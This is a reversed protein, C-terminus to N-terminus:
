GQNKHLKEIYYTIMRRYQNTLDKTERTKVDALLGDIKKGEHLLKASEVLYATKRSADNNVTQKSGKANPKYKFVGNLVLYDYVSLIYFKDGLGLDNNILMAMQKHYDESGIWREVLQRIFMTLREHRFNYSGDKESKMIASRTSRGTMYGTEIRISRIIPYYDRSDKGKRKPDPDVGPHELRQFLEVLQDAQERFGDMYESNKPLMSLFLDSLPVMLNQAHNYEIGLADCMEKIGDHFCKDIFYSSILDRFGPYTTDYVYNGKEDKDYYGKINYGWDRECWYKENIEIEELEVGLGLVTARGNENEMRQDGAYFNVKRGVWQGNVKKRIM